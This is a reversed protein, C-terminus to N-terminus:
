ERAAAAILPAISELHISEKYVRGRKTNESTPVFRIYDLHENVEEVFKSVEVENRGRFADLDPVDALYLFPLAISMPVERYTSALVSVISLRIKDQALKTAECFVTDTCSSADPEFLQSYTVWFEIFQCNELLEYCRFCCFSSGSFYYCVLIDFNM